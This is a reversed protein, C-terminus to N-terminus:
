EVRDAALVALGVNGRGDDCLFGEGFLDLTIAYVTIGALVDIAGIAVRCDFFGNSDGVFRAAIRLMQSAIAMRMEAGASALYGLLLAARIVKARSVGHGLVPFLRRGQGPWTMSWMM